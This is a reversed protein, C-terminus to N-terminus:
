RVLAPVRPTVYVIQGPELELEAEEDRTLQASFARGEGDVLEVRVEFGLHLVRSVMAEFSDPGADPSVALDHPRVRGAATEVVPGFFSM